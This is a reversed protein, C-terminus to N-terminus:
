APPRTWNRRRYRTPDWGRPFAYEGPWGIREFGPDGSGAPPGYVPAGEIGSLTSFDADRRQAADYRAQWRRRGGAIGDADMGRHYSTRSDGVMPQSRGSTGHRGPAPAALVGARRM